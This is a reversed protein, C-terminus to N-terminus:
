RNKFFRPFLIFRHPQYLDRATQNTTVALPFSFLVAPIWVGEVVRAIIPARVSEWQGTDFVTCAYYLPPSCLSAFETGIREPELHTVISVVGVGWLAWALLRYPLFRFPFFLSAFEKRVLWKWLWMSGCFVSWKAQSFIGIEVFWLTNVESVRVDIGYKPRIPNNHLQNASHSDCGLVGLMVLSAKRM